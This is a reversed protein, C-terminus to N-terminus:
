NQTYDNVGLIAKELETLEGIVNFITAVEYEFPGLQRMVTQVRECSPFSDNFEIIERDLIFLTDGNNSDLEEQTVTIKKIYAM